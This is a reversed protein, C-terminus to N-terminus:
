FFGSNKEASLGKFKLGYFFTSSYGSGFWLDPFRIRIPNVLLGPDPGSKGTPRSVSRILCYDQIRVPNVLLGPDPGSEGTPRSVYDISLSRCCQEKREEECRKDAYRIDIGQFRRRGEGRLWHM